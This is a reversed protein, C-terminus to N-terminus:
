ATTFNVVKAVALKNGTLDKIGTGVMAIYATTAALSATPNFTVIKYTSDISLAGTVTAGDASMVIINDSNATDSQIAEDFTFVIDSTVVVGTAADAISCTVTPATTDYVKIPNDFFTLEEGVTYNEADQDLIREFEGDFQHPMSSAKITQPKLKVASGTSENDDNGDEFQCGYFWCFVSKKNSKTAEIGVAVIPAVDSSKVIMEAGVMTHGLLRAKHEIPLTAVILEIETIDRSTAKEWPQDDAYFIDRNTKRTVGCKNLGSILYPAAYVVGTEDDKTQIAYHFKKLGKLMSM